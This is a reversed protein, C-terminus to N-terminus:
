NNPVFDTEDDGLEGNGSTTIFDEVEFEEIKLEPQEYHKM